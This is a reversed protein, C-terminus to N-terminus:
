PARQRRYSLGALVFPLCACVFGLPKWIGGEALMAVLGIITLSAQSLVFALPRRQWATALRTM